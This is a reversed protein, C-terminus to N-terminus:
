VVSKRDTTFAKRPAMAEPTPVFDTEEMWITLLYQMTMDRRPSHHAPGLSRRPEVWPRVVASRISRRWFALAGARSPAAATVVHDFMAPSAVRATVDHSGDDPPPGRAHGTTAVNASIWPPPPLAHSQCRTAGSSRSRPCSGTATSRGHSSSDASQRAYALATTSATASRPSTM